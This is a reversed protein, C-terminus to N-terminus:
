ILTRDVIPPQTINCFRMFDDLTENLNALSKFYNLPPTFAWKDGWGERYLHLHPVPIEVGDPNRHPQSGLDLRALVVVQRARSQFKCKLLNIQGRSIDLIFQERKDMSQIPISISQGGIPFSTREDSMRQKDLALLADAEAQTLDIDGM